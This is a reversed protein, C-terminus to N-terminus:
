PNANIEEIRLSALDKQGLGMASGASIYALEDPQLGFLSAAFSDAAVIDPSAIVTETQRVDDLSGGTPGHNMLIRMADVVTLTPYIRSTLDALRQGLDAHMAPRDQITGMLNKMGLTLRALSHHKAIPVNILVDANLIDDYIAAKALSKGGPIDVPIFKLRSMSTMEGGAAQVQEQIGSVAYAEEASGGFPYDMVRVSKAGAQLCLKVLAGIVFPNTTAAYEYSHYAVCINPKIVVRAGQPVFRQMGGLAEIALMVTQEPDNGHSVVLDPLAAHSDVATPQGSPDPGTESTPNAPQQGPNTTSAPPRVTPSSEQLDAQVTAPIGARRCATLLPEATAAGSLAALWTLFKRRSIRQM